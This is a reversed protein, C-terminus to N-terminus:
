SLVERLTDSEVKLNLELSNKYTSYISQFYKNDNTALCDEVVHSYEIDRLLFPM